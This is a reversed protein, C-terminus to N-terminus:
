KSADSSKALVGSEPIDNYQKVYEGSPSDYEVVTGESAYVMGMENMARQRVTELNVSDAASNYATTNEETLEALKEQMATVNESRSVVESQLGLYLMCILVACVAASVLFVAYAPTISMARHRNKAVQRSTRKTRRLREQHQEPKEGPLIEAQRVANGYVYFQSYERGRLAATKRNYARYGAAM